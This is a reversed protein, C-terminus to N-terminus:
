VESVKCFKGSAWTSEARPSCCIIQLKECGFCLSLHQKQTKGGGNSGSLRTGCGVTESESIRWFIIRSAVWFRLSWSATSLFWTTLRDCFLKTHQLLKVEHKSKSTHIKILHQWKSSIRFSDFDKGCLSFRASKARFRKKFINYVPLLGCQNDKALLELLCLSCSFFLKRKNTEKCKTLFPFSTTFNTTLNIKSVTMIQSFLKWVSGSFNSVLLIKQQLGKTQLKM